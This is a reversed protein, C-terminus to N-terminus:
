SAGLAAEAVEIWDRAGSASVGFPYRRLYMEFTAIADDHEGLKIQAYGRQFLMASAFYGTGHDLLFGDVRKVMERYLFRKEEDGVHEALTRAYLEEVEDRGAKEEGPVAFVRQGRRIPWFLEANSSIDINGDADAFDAIQSMTRDIAGEYAWDTLQCISLRPQPTVVRILSEGSDVSGLLDGGLDRIEESPELVAFYDGASVGHATGRDIAIQVTNFFAEVLSLWWLGLVETIQDEELSDFDPTEPARLVEVVAGVDSRAGTEHKQVAEDLAPHARVLIDTPIMFAARLESQTDAVAVIGAVAKADEDWVPTGSFGAAIFYGTHKIDEIQIWGGVRRDRLLGSAWQGSDFGAPFGFARFRRAWPDPLDVLSGPEAGGPVGDTLSLVAVDSPADPADDQVPFWAVVRGTSATAPAVFPFDLQVSGTPAGARADAGLASAVVHACTVVTDPLVLVGAGVVGGSASFIRALAAQISSWATV